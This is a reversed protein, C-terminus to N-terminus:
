KTIKKILRNVVASRKSCYFDSFDVDYGHIVDYKDGDKDSFITYFTNPYIEKTKFSVEKFKFSLTKKKKATVEQNLYMLYKADDVEVDDKISQRYFVLGTGVHKFEGWAGHKVLNEGDDVEEILQGNKFSIVGYDLAAM